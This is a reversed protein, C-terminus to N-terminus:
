FLNEVYKKLLPIVLSGAAPAVYAIVFKNITRTDFPWVPLEEILNMINKLKVILDGETKAISSEEIKRRLKGLEDQLQHAFDNLLESKFRIMTKRFPILPSFFVLPGFIFYYTILVILIIEIIFSIELINLNHFYFILLNIGIVTLIYQHRLGLKGVSALGCCRDPHFPKLRIEANKVLDRLFFSESCVRLIYVTVTFFFLFVCYLYVWGTLSFRTDKLIWFGVKPDSWMIYNIYIVVSGNVIGIIQYVVNWKKFHSNWASVLVKAKNQRIYVINECIIKNLSKIILSQDTVSYVVLLPFSVAFWFFM